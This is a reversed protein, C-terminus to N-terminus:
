TGDAIMALYSWRYKDFFGELYHLMWTCMAFLWNCKTKRPLAWGVKFCDALNLNSTGRRATRVHSFFVMMQHSAVNLVKPGLQWTPFICAWWNDASAEHITGPVNSISAQIWMMALFVIISMIKLFPFLIHIKMFSWFFSRKIRYKMSQWWIELYTNNARRTSIYGFSSYDHWLDEMGNIIHSIPQFSKNIIWM